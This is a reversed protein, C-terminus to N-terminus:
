DLVCHRAADVLAHGSLTVQPANIPDFGFSGSHAWASNYQIPLRTRESRDLKVAARLPWYPDRLLERGLMVMDACGERVIPNAHVPDNILGVAASPIGARTRLAEAGVVQYGLGSPIATKPANGGSSADIIDVGDEKLWAALQVSDQLTWGGKAWDSYSLRVGLVKDDPWVNRIARAVERTFRCRGELSDGYGDM